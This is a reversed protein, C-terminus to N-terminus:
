YQLDLGIGLGWTWFPGFLFPTGGSRVTINDMWGVNGRGEFRLRPSANFGVKGGVQLVKIWEDGTVKGFAGSANFDVHAPGGAVDVAAYLRGLQQEFSLDLVAAMATLDGNANVNPGQGVPNQLEDVVYIAVQGRGGIVLRTNPGLPVGIGAGMDFGLGPDFGFSQGGTGSLGPNDWFGVLETGLYGGLRLCTDTGPIYWYGSGFDDCIRVYDVPEPEAPEDEDDAVGPVRQALWVQIQGVLTHVEPDTTLGYISEFYDYWAQVLSDPPNTRHLELQAQAEAAEVGALSPDPVQPPAAFSRSGFITLCVGCVVVATRVLLLSRFM